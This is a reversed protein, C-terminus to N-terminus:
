TLRAWISREEATLPIHGAPREPHGNPPVAAEPQDAGQEAPRAMLERLIEHYGVVGSMTAGFAILMLYLYRAVFRIASGLLRWGTPRGTTTRVTASEPRNRELRTPVRTFPRM